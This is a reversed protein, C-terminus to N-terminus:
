QAATAKVDALMRDFYPTCAGAKVIYEVPNTLSAEYQEVTLDNFVLGETNAVCYANGAYTVDYYHAWGPWSAKDGDAVYSEFEVTDLRSITAGAATAAMWTDMYVRYYDLETAQSNVLLANSADAIGEALDALPAATTDGPAATTSPTATPLVAAPVDAPAPTPTSCGSVTAAAIIAAAAIITQYKKM